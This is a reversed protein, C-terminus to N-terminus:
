ALPVGGRQGLSVSSSEASSMAPEKGREAGVGGESNVEPFESVYERRSHTVINVGRHLSIIDNGVLVDVLLNKLVGM